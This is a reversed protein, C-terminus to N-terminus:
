LGCLLILLITIFVLLQTFVSNPIFPSGGGGFFADWNISTSPFPGLPRGDHPLAM